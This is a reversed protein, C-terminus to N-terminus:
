LGLMRAIINRQIDSTGGWITGGISDRFDREVAGEVYGAAGFIRLADESSAFFAEAVALKAAAAELPARRGSAKAEAVRYVHHRAGVLRVYMNAIRNSVSQFKGIPQGFQEREKAYAVVRDLQRQMQGIQSALMCSREYELSGQAVSVGSGPKGLVASRPVWCDKLTVSGFPVTRMGMKPVVPGIEVGDMERDVLFCTIGWRGAAANVTAYVLLLDAVPGLTIHVKEGNLVYGEDTEVATTQLSFVDSGASRESMAQAGILTGESLPPLYRAQQEPTGAGVIAHQITWIQANLAVTLGYDPCGYGLGEMARVVELPSWGLGGHQTPLALKLLGRAACLKWAAHAFTGSANREQLDDMPLSRAFAAIEASLADTTAPSASTM